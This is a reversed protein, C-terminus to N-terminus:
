GGPPPLELFPVGDRDSREMELYFSEALRRGFLGAAQRYLLRLQEESRSLRTLDPGSLREEILECIFVVCTCPRRSPVIRCGTSGLFPCAGSAFDPAVPVEGAATVDLIDLSTPHYRGVRCCAGGCAACVASGDAGDTLSVIEAKRRGIDALLAALEARRSEPLRSFEGTLQSVGKEWLVADSEANKIRDDVTCFMYVQSSCGTLRTRDGAGTVGRRTVTM